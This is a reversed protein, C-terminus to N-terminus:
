HVGEDDGRDRMGMDVPRPGSCEIYLCRLVARVM